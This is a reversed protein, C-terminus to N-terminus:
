PVEIIRFYRGTETVDFEQILLEDPANFKEGVPHWTRLDNAAELQYNKGLVVHQAVRVKAVSCDLRPTFPPSAILVRASSTYGSGADTVTIGTVRGDKITASAVAGTGQGDEIRVVPALTYGYGVETVTIEVVFGNMITISAKARRPIFESSVPIPAAFQGVPTVAVEDFYVRSQIDDVLYDRVLRVSVSDDLATFNGYAFTWEPVGLVSDVHFGYSDGNPRLVDLYAWNSIQDGGHILGSLVYLEGKEVPVKQM